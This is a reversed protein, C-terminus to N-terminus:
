PIRLTTPPGKPNYPIHNPDRIKPNAKAIEKWRKPSGYMEKAVDRMSMGKRLVEYRNPLGVQRIQLREEARYQLLHVVADQRMRVYDGNPTQTWYVNDGWDITTIVWEASKIPVAGIITVTPPPTYDTGMQMQNLRAIDDEVSDQTHWADFLIPVEMQYPEFGVWQTIGVRRPRNIIQWGGGGGTMKPADAGRLVQVSAGTIANFTYYYKLLAM